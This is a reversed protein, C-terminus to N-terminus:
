FPPGSVIGSMLRFYTRVKVTGTGVTPNGTLFSIVLPAAETPTVGSAGSAARYPNMQRLQDTSQDIFGSIAVQGLQTGAGNTYSVIFDQGGTITYAVVHQYYLVAKVFELYYGTAPAAVLTVPTTFLALLQASSLLTDAHGDIHQPSDAWYDGAKATGQTIEDYRPQQSPM